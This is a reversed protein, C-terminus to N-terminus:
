SKIVDCTGRRIVSCESHGSRQLNNHEKRDIDNFIINFVYSNPDPRNRNRAEMQGNFVPYWTFYEEKERRENKNTTMRACVNHDGSSCGAPSVLCVIDREFSFDTIDQNIEKVNRFSSKWCCFVKLCKSPMSNHMDGGETDGVRNLTRYLSWPVSLLSWSVCWFCKLHVAVIRHRWVFKFHKFQGIRTYQTNRPVSKRKKEIRWAHCM